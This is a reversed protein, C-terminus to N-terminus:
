GDCLSGHRRCESTGCNKFGHWRRVNAEVDKEDVKIEPLDSVTVDYQNELRKALEIAKAALDVDEVGQAKLAKAIDKYFIAETFLASKLSTQHM